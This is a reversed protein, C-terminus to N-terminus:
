SLFDDRRPTFVDLLMGAKECKVGHVINSAIYISDGTSVKSKEGDIEFIFQGSIVYVIQEHVHCHKTGISGAKFNVEVIMMNKSNALIKRTIENELTDVAIENYNFIKKNM